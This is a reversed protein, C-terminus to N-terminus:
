EFSVQRILKPSGNEYIYIKGSESIAAEFRLLYDGYVFEQGIQFEYTKEGNIEGNKYLNKQWPMNNSQGKYEDILADLYQESDEPTLFPLPHVDKETRMHRSVFSFLDKM